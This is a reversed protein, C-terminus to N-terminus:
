KSRVTEQPVASQWYGVQKGKRSHPSLPLPDGQESGLEMQGECSSAMASVISEVRGSSLGQFGPPQRAIAVFLLPHQM